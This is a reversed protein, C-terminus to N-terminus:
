TSSSNLRKHLPAPRPQGPWFPRGAQKGKRYQRRIRARACVCVRTYIYIYKHTHSHTHTRAHTLAYAFIQIYICMYLMSLRPFLSLLHKKNKNKVEAMKSFWRRVPFRLNSFTKNLAILKRRLEFFERCYIIYYLM